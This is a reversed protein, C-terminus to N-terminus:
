SVPERESERRLGRENKKKKKESAQGREDGVVSVRSYAAYLGLPGDPRRKDRNRYCSAFLLIEVGGPHSAVEM